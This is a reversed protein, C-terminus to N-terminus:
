RFTKSASRRLRSRRSRGDLLLLLLLLLLLVNRQTRAIRGPLLSKFSQHRRHEQVFIMGVAGDV